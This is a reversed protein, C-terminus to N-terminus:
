RMSSPRSKPMLLHTMPPIIKGHLILMIVGMTLQVAEEGGGMVQVMLIRLNIGGHIIILGIFIKQTLIIKILENFNIEDNINTNQQNEM